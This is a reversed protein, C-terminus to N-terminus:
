IKGNQPVERLLREWEARVAKGVRRAYEAEAEGFLAESDETFWEMSRRLKERMERFDVTCGYKTLHRQKERDIHSLKNASGGWPLRDLATLLLSAHTDYLVRTVAELKFFDERILYKATMHAHYWYDAILRRPDDRWVEGRPASRILAQVAGDRDFLVQEERLDTYHLRCFYDDIRGRNLLFLDYQFVRGNWKLLFGYNKIADSNFGEAYELVVEDCVGRLLAERKRDLEPFANEEVLFVADVDSYEDSGGRGVSGFLWAGSVGKEEKMTEVFKQHVTQLEKLM